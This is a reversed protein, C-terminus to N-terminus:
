FHQAGFIALLDSFAEDVFEVGANLLIVPAFLFVTLDQLQVALNPASPGLDALVERSPGLVLDLIAEVREDLFVIVYAKLLNLCDIFAPWLHGSFNFLDGVNGFCVVVARGM